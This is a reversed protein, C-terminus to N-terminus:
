GWRSTTACVWISRSSKASAGTTMSSCGHSMVSYDQEPSARHVLREASHRAHLRRHGPRVISRRARRACYTGDFAYAGGRWGENVETQRLERWDYSFRWTHNSRTWTLTPTFQMNYFPQARGTNFGSQQAGLTVLRGATTPSGIRDLLASHAPLRRAAVAHQGSLRARLSGAPWDRPDDNFRLWSGKM